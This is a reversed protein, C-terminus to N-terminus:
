GASPSLALWAQRIHALHPPSPERLDYRIELWLGALDNKRWRRQALFVEGARYDLLALKTSLPYLAPVQVKAGQESRDKIVCDAWGTFNPGYFLRAAINTARRPERRREHGDWAPREPATAPQPM